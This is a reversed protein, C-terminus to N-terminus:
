MKGQKMSSVSLARMKLNMPCSQKKKKKVIIDMVPQPVITDEREKRHWTQLRSTCTQQRNEDDDDHLDLTSKSECLSYKFLKLMLALAHNGYATKGAM